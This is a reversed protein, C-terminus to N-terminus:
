SLLLLLADLAFATVKTCGHDDYSVTSHLCDRHSLHLHRSIMIVVPMLQAQSVAISAPLGYGCGCLSITRLGAGNSVLLADLPRLRHKIIAYCAQEPQATRLGM